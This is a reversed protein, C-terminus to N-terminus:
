SFHAHGGREPTERDAFVVAPEASAAVVSGIVVAGSPIEGRVTGAFAHDDGGTALWEFPDVGLQVGADVVETTLPLMAGSLEIRVGSALAVHGLDALLGDSVDILSSFAGARAAGLAEVYAVLPRRHAGMLPHEAASRDVGGAELLALGAAAWGIRGLLVVVDGQAAGSRTVPERGELDGIATVAIMVADAASVDGGAVSAGVLDAEDRLGDALADAWGADLGKPAALGVVLSTPRAGMAVVDALSAAAARRGVDYGSSWDRRFHRGEVLLDVTIVVRGDPALVVAADDGPGVVVDPGQRLRQVVRAILGFEGADSVSIVLRGEPRIRDPM